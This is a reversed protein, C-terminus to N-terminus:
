GLVLEDVREPWGLALEQAVKGGMSVGWVHTRAIGLADLLRRTDDALDVMRTPVDIAGSRGAGRNDFTLVRYEREFYPVQRFWGEQLGGLGTILTLWPAGEPGYTRYSLTLGPRVELEPM